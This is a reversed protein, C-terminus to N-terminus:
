KEKTPTTAPYDWGEKAWLVRTRRAHAHLYKDDRVDDRIHDNILGCGYERSIRAKLPADKNGRFPRIVNQKHRSQAPSSKKM